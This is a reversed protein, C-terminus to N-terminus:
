RGHTTESGIRRRGVNGDHKATQNRGDFVEFVPSGLSSHFFKVVPQFHASKITSFMSRVQQYFIPFSIVQQPIAWVGM